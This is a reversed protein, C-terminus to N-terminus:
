DGPPGPKVPVFKIEKLKEPDPELEKSGAPFHNQSLMYAMVDVILQKDLTKPKDVPMATFIKDYMDYLTQGDWSAMFPPGVLPHADDGAPTVGGQLAAGHCNACGTKYLSDGRAAQAETFVSDWVSRDLRQTRTFHAASPSVPEGRVTLQSAAIMGIAILSSTIGIKM